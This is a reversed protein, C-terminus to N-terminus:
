WDVNHVLIGFYGCLILLQCQLAKIGFGRVLCRHFVSAFCTFVVCAGTASHIEETKKNKKM